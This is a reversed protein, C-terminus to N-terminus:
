EIAAVAAVAIDIVVDEEAQRVLLGPEVMKGELNGIDVVDAHPVIIELLEAFVLM